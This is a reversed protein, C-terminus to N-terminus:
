LISRVCSSIAIAFFVHLGSTSNWLTGAPPAGSKWLKEESMARTCLLQLLNELMQLRELVLRAGVVFREVIHQVLDHELLLYSSGRRTHSVRTATLHRPVIRVLPLLLRVLKLTHHTLM